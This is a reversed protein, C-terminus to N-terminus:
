HTTKSAATGDSWHGVLVMFITAREEPDNQAIVPSGPLNGGWTKARDGFVYFMLHPHWNGDAGSLYQQKSLMYSMAGPKLTPLEKRDFALALARAIEERSKRELVQRTKMLYIPVFTRAAAPNFCIPGRIKPNWFEPDTTASGWSREVLCLFGNSGKIVTVYGKRGLVMVAAGASVSPPAASRALTVEAERHMLYQGVPAMFPYADEKALAKSQWISCALAVQVLFGITAIRRTKKSM